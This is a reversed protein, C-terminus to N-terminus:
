IRSISNKYEYYKKIEGVLIKTKIKLQRYDGDNDITYEFKKYKDLTSESDHKETVCGPRNVRIVM